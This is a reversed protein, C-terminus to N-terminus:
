IMMNGQLGTNKYKAISLKKYEKLEEQPVKDLFKFAIARKDYDTFFRVYVLDGLKIGFYELTTRPFVIMSPKQLRLYPKDPIDPIMYKPEKFPMFNFKRERPM